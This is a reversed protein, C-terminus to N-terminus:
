NKGTPLVIALETGKGLESQCKLLGGHRVEIIQRSIALGLGTGKGVPKTTFGQEFIRQKVEEPMGKGNDAIKILINRDIPQTQIFIQNPHAAIEAFTRGTNSEDLADIANAFLNMFVQNLQGPFCKVKPLDGYDKVINIEPRNENAKLRHKLMLLTSEIGDHLNFSVKKDTDTRSFTRLSKSIQRLRDVGLSMSTILKPLDERLFDLEIAEIKRAIKGGPDPFVEQYLDLLGLLDEIYSQAPDINGKLFGIPNNIEHAVGAVLQGLTAMKESQVLQLQTNQLQKLRRSLEQNAVSLQQNMQQLAANQKALKEEQIETKVLLQKQLKHLALHTRVRVLVEEAQFPKTIYDIGGVEFAKLKDFMADLASVFIVPIDRTREDQKLHQCVQYGDMDPMSIDLLILDPYDLHIGQLALKGSPIPRVTYGQASLLSMLVQLNAPTDDIMLINGSDPKLLDLTM